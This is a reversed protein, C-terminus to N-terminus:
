RSRRLVSGGGQGGAVKEAAWSSSQSATNEAAERALRQERLQATRIRVADIAAQYAARAKPADIAQLERRRRDAAAKDDTTGRNKM